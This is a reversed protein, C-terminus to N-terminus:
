SPGRNKASIGWCVHEVNNSFDCATPAAGRVQRAGCSGRTAKSSRASDRVCHLVGWCAGQLCTWPDPAVCPPVSATCGMEAFGQCVTANAREEAARIRASGERGVSVSCGHWCDTGLWETLCDADTDCTLSDMEAAKVAEAVLRAAALSQEACTPYRGDFTGADARGSDSGGGGGDDAPAGADESTVAGGCAAIGHLLLLLSSARAAFKM